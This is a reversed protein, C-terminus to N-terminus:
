NQDKLASKFYPPMAGGRLAGEGEYRAWIQSGLTHKTNVAESWVVVVWLGGGEGEGQGGRGEVGGGACGEM